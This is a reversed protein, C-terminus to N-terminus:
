RGRRRLEILLIRGPGATGNGTMRSGRPIPRVGPGRIAAVIRRPEDGTGDILVDLRRSPCRRGSDNRGSWSSWARPRGNMSSGARWRTRPMTWGTSTSTSCRSGARPVRDDARVDPLQRHGHDRPRRRLGQRVADQGLRPRRRPVAPRRGPGGRCAAPGPCPNRRPRHHRRRARQAPVHVDIRPYGFGRVWAAPRPAASRDWGRLAFAARTAAGPQSGRPREPRPTHRRRALRPPRVGICSTRSLSVPLSTSRFPDPTASSIAWRSRWRRSARSSWSRPRSTSAPASGGSGQRGWSGARRARTPGAGSGSGPGTSRRPRPITARSSWRRASGRPAGGGARRVARPPGHGPRPDVAPDCGGAGPGRVAPDRPARGAPSARLGPLRAAGQRAAHGGRDGPRGDRPRADPGRCRDALWRRPHQGGERRRHRRAAAGRVSGHRARAPRPRRIRGRVRRAAGPRGSARRDGGRAPGRDGAGAVPSPLIVRHDGTVM